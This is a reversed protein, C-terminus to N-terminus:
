PRRPPPHDRLASRPVFLCLGKKRLLAPLAAPPHLPRGRYATSHRATSRQATSGAAGSVWRRSPHGCHALSAQLCLPNHPPPNYPCVKGWHRSYPLSLQCSVRGRPLLPGPLASRRLSSPTLAASGLARGVSHTRAGILGFVLMFAAGTMTVRRSAVGTVSIAGVNEARLARLWAHFTPPAQMSAGNGCWTRDARGAGRCARTRRARRRQRPLRLLACGTCALCTRRGHGTQKGPCARHAVCLSRLRAHAACAARTPGGM